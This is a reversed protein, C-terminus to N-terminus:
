YYSCYDTIELAPWIAMDSLEHASTFVLRRTNVLRTQSNGFGADTFYLVGVCFNRESRATVGRIGPIRM